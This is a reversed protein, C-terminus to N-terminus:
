VVECEEGIGLVGLTMTVDRPSLFVRDSIRVYELTSTRFPQEFVALTCHRSHLLQLDFLCHLSPTMVALKAAWQSNTPDSM